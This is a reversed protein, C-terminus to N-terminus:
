ANQWDRSRIITAAQGFREREIGGMGEAMAGSSLGGTAGLSSRLSQMSASALDNLDNLYQAKQADGYVPQNAKKLQQQMFPLLSSRFQSFEPSEIAEDFMDVNSTNSSKETSNQTSNFNQKGQSGSSGIAGLAASAIPGVGPIFSAGMQAIPKLFGM